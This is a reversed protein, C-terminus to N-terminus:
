GYEFPALTLLSTFEQPVDTYFGRDDVGVIVAPGYVMTGAVLSAISNQPMGLREGDRNVIMRGRDKLRISEKAGGVANQFSVVDVLEVTSTIKIARIASM